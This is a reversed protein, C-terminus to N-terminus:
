PTEIPLGSAKWSDIGGQIDYVSKFGLGAMIKVADASRQGSRCYVLYPKSRDLPALRDRFDKAYYDVNLAGLLHGSDFEQKTRVDLVLLGKDADILDKAKQPSIASSSAGGLTMCGALVVVAALAAARMLDM